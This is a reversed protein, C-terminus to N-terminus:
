VRAQAICGPHSLRPSGAWCRRPVRVREPGTDSRIRPLHHVCRGRSRFWQDCARWCRTTSRVLRHHQEARALCGKSARWGTAGHHPGGDVDSSGGKELHKKAAGHRAKRQPCRDRCARGSQCSRRPVGKSRLSVQPRRKELASTPVRSLLVQGALTLACCWCSSIRLLTLPQTTHVLPGLACPHDTAPVHPPSKGHAHIHSPHNEM